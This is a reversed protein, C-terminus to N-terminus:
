FTMKFTSQQLSGQLHFCDTKGLCGASHTVKWALHSHTINFHLHFLTVCYVLVEHSRNEAYQGKSILFFSQQTKFMMFDCVFVVLQHHSGVASRNQRQVEVSLLSHQGETVCPVPVLSICCRLLGAALRGVHQKQQEATISLGLCLIYSLLTKHQLNNSDYLKGPLFYKFPM